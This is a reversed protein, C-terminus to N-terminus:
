VKLRLSSIAAVAGDETQKIRSLLNEAEKSYDKLQGSLEDHNARLTDILTAM